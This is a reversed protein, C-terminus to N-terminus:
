ALFEEMVGLYYEELQDAAIEWSFLGARVSAIANWSNVTNRNDLVFNISTVIEQVNSMDLAMGAGGLIEKTSTENHCLSSKGRKMAELISLGFGEYLSPFINILARDYLFALESDSLDNFVHIRHKFESAMILNEPERFNELPKGVLVLHPTDPRITSLNEFALLVSQVNKYDQWRSVVLLFDTISPFGNPMKPQLSDFNSGLYLHKVKKESFRGLEVIKTVAHLSVGFILSIKKASLQLSKRFIRTWLTEAGPILKQNMDHLTIIHLHAPFLFFFPYIRSSHWHAIDFKSDSKLRTHLSWLVFSFFHRAFFFRMLPIKIETISQLSYISDYGHEYHVLTQEINSKQSLQTILERAVRATGSNTRGDVVDTFHAVRIIRKTKM